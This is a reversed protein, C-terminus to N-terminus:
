GTHGAAKACRDRAYRHAAVQANQNAVDDM